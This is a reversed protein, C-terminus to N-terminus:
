SEDIKGMRRKRYDGCAKKFFLIKEKKKDEFIIINLLHKITQLVDLIYKMPFGYFKDNYYLRNRFMYYHRVPNHNLVGKKNLEGLQQYLIAGQYQLVKIKKLRLRKCLDVEARDIFYNEDYFIKNKKLVSTNLFSGSTIVYNVDVIRNVIKEKNKGIYNIQPGIIGFNISKNLMDSCIKIMKKIDKEKYISDQDLLCLIENKELFNLVYNFAKPLGDNKGNYFYM